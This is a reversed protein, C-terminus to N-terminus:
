AQPEKQVPTKVPWRPFFAPVRECYQAYGPKTKMMHREMLSTASGKHMFWTVYAASPLALWGWPHALAIVAYGWWMCAQGFYNPHRCLSWLGSDLLQEASKRERKFRALQWDGGAEFVLGVLWILAGLGHWLSWGAELRLALVMPIAWLWMVVGQLLFVQFYSWWWWRPGSRERWRAYRPDEGHPLNRWTVYLAYRGFGLTSLVVLVLHASSREPPLQSWLWWPAAVLLYGFAWDMISSDRKLVSILWVLTLMLWLWVGLALWQVFAGSLAPPWRWGISMYLLAMALPLLPYVRDLWRLKGRPQQWLWFGAPPLWLVFWLPIWASAPIAYTSM